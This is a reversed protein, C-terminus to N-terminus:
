ILMQKSGHTSVVYSCITNRFHKLKHVHKILHIRRVSRVVMTADGVDDVVDDVVDDGVDDVVDDGVDDVVDDGVDDVVQIEAVYASNCNHFQHCLFSNKGKRHYGSNKGRPFM